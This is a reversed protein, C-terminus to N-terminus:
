VDCLLFITDPNGNQNPSQAAICTHLWSIDFAAVSGHAKVWTM